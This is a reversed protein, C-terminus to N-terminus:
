FNRVYRVTELSNYVNPYWPRIWPTAGPARGGLIPFFIIKQRKKECSIGWFIERRAGSAGIIKLVGGLKFDQIGDWM